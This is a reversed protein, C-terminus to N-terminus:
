DFARSILDIGETKQWEKIQKYNACYISLEDYFAKSHNMHIRHCLEHIVVYDLVAMPAAVLLSNFTLKGTSKCCGWKSKMLRISVESYPVGMLEAYYKVREPIVKKAKILMEQKEEETFPILQGRIHGELVLKEIRDKNAYLIGKIRSEKTKLTAKCLIRGKSDVSISITKRKASRTIEVPVSFGELYLLESM